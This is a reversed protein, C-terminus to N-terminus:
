RNINFNILEEYDNKLKEVHNGTIIHEMMSATSKMLVKQGEKIEDVTDLKDIIYNFPKIIGKYIVAGAAGVTSVIGCVLLITEM